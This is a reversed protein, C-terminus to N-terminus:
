YTDEDDEDYENWGDNDDDSEDADVYDLIISLAEDPGHAKAVKTFMEKSESKMGADKLARQAAGLLVFTNSDLGVLKCKPKM